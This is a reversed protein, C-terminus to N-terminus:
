YQSYLKQQLARNEANRDEVLKEAYANLEVREDSKATTEDQEATAVEFLPGVRVPQFKDAPESGPPPVAQSEYRMIPQVPVVRSLEAADSASVPQIGPVM